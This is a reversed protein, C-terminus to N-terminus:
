GHCLPFGPPCPPPDKPAGANSTVYLPVGYEHAEELATRLYYNNVVVNNGNLVLYIPAYNTAEEVVAKKKGTKANKKKM